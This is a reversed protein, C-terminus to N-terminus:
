HSHGSHDEARITKHMSQCGPSLEKIKGDVCKMFTEQNKGEPSGCKLKEVEKFCKKEFEPEFRVEEGAFTFTSFLLVAILSKM